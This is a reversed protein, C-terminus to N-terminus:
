FHWRHKIWATTEQDPARLHIPYTSDARKAVIGELGQAQAATFFALGEGDVHAAFRVRPHPRLVSQLLRKRDELAVDILSRGDLYLLDFAEFVLGPASKDGLREQLLGVLDDLSRSGDRLPEPVHVRVEGARYKANLHAVRELTAAARALSDGFVDM